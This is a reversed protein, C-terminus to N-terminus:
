SSDSSHLAMENVIHLDQMKSAVGRKRQQAKDMYEKSKAIELERKEMAARREQRAEVNDPKATSMFVDNDDDVNGMGTYNVEDEDVSDGSPLSSILLDAIWLSVMGRLELLEPSDSYPPSTLLGDMRASIRYAEALEKARVGAALRQYKEQWDDRSGNESNADEDEWAERLSAPDRDELDGRAAVSEEQTVYVWLGFMAPYFHLADIANPAHKQYPHQIILTEYYEKADEFGKRTFLLRSFAGPGHNGDGDTLTGESVRSSIQHDKRLLIEAGIGWRGESRVDIPQGRFQERILLGWAKGARIYDGDLLCRHLVSTLVSLHHLRLNGQRAASQPAYLPPSLNSLQKEISHRDNVKLNREKAPGHPFHGGPLEEDFPLGAVRYQGVEEPSLTVSPNTPGFESVADTTEGDDGNNDSEDEGTDYQNRRKRSEYKAVRVSPDQQWLPLPLSFASVSPAFAM